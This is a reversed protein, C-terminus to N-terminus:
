TRFRAIASEILARSDRKTMAVASLNDLIRMHTETRSAEDLYEASDTRELYVVDPLDPAQFRLMTIPVGAHAPIDADFPLVQVIVNPRKMMTLVHELQEIMVKKGGVRRWLVSEDIVVWLKLAGHPRTLAEQRTKRFTIRRGIEENQALPVGAQMLARAYGETQLLGPMHFAEFVRVISASSELGVFLEFWGPVLDQYALWWGRQNARWVLEQVDALMRPDGEGYFALLKAVEQGSLQFRGRGTELRSIKTVSCGLHRAAARAPVGKQERRGRLMLGLGMRLVTPTSTAQELLGAM